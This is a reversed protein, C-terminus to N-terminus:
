DKLKEQGITVTVKEPFSEIMVTDPPIKFKLEQEYQGNALGRAEVFAKLEERKVFRLVGSTGQLVISAYRPRVSAAGEAGVIEIPISGYRSNVFSDGVQLSVTTFEVSLDALQMGPPPVLAADITQNQQLGSIDIPETAVERVKMLDSKLGSIKVWNPNLASKKVFYGEAPTGHPVYKIPVTREVKEDVFLTLYPDHITISLRSDWNKIEDKDIRVRYKRGKLPPVRVTAELVNPAETMLVRPGRVTAALARKSEGRIAYGEPAEINVIIERNLELIQEGQIIGWIIFALFLSTVKYWFNHFLKQTINFRM